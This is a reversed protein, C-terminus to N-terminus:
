KDKKPHGQELAKSRAQLHKLMDEKSVEHGLEKCVINFALAGVVAGLATHLGHFVNKEQEANLAKSM